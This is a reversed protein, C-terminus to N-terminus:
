GTPKAPYWYEPEPLGQDEPWDLVEFTVPERGGARFNFWRNKEYKGSMICALGRAELMATMDDFDTGEHTFTVYHPGGGKEEFFERYISKGDGPEILLFNLQGVFALGARFTLAEPEGYHTTERIGPPEINGVWWPGIGLRDAYDRVAADVDSTSIVVQSIGDFLRNPLDTFFYADLADM